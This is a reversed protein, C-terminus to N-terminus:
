LWTRPSTSQAATRRFPAILNRTICSTWQTRLGAREKQRVCCIATCGRPRVAMLDWSNREMAFSVIRTRQENLHRYLESSFYGTIQRALDGSDEPSFLLGTHGEVIDNKLSGVDAALVPLGFSYSLFLVGSQYIHRYPLVLLDAAMFYIETDEDPVFDANLIVRGTAEDAEISQRLANWYQSNKPIGAVILRYNGDRELLQHFAAILYELGKYAAINGFFLLAKHNPEVGLRKKAEDSTIGTKPVSNNIGFPIVTIRDGIVGFDAVLEAKMSETHVFAHDALRYQCRYSDPSEAM